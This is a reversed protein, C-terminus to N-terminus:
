PARPNTLVVDYSGANAATVSAIGYAANTAGSIAVGDKRWQYTPAPSGTAVVALNAAAGLAVTQAQPQASIAPPTATQGALPWALAGLISVLVVRFLQKM